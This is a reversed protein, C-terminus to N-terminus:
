CAWGSTSCTCVTGVTPYRCVTGLDLCSTDEDPPSPPCVECTWQGMCTCLTEAYRCQIVSSCAGGQVPTRDPCDTTSCSWRGDNPCTCQERQWQCLMGPESCAENSTPTTV